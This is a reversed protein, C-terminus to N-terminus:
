YLITNGIVKAGSEALKDLMGALLDRSWPWRGLNEISQDDIAIIEIKKGPDREAHRVGWDYAAYELGRILDSNAIALFLVSIILGAFWEQRWFGQKM